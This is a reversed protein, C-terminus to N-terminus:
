RALERNRKEVMHDPLQIADFRRVDENPPLPHLLSAEVRRTIRSTKICLLPSVEWLSMTRFGNFTPAVLVCIKGTHCDCCEPGHQGGGLILALVGPKLGSM